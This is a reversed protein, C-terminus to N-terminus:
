ASGGKLCPSVYVVPVPASNFATQLDSNYDLSQQLGLKQLPLDPLSLM